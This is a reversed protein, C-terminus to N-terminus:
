LIFGVWRIRERVSDAALREVDGKYTIHFPYLDELLNLSADKEEYAAISGIDERASPHSACPMARVQRCSLLDIGVSSPGERNKWSLELQTETLIAKCHVWRYPQGSRLDLYWLTGDSLIQFFFFLVIIPTPMLVM